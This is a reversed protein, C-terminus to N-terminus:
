PLELELNKLLLWSLPAPEEDGVQNWPSRLLVSDGRGLATGAM